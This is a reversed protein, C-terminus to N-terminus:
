ACRFLCFETPKSSKGIGKYFYGLIICAYNSMEAAKEKHLAMSMHKRTILILRTIQMKVFKILALM